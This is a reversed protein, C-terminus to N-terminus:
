AAFLSVLYAIAGGGRQAPVLPLLGAPPGAPGLVQVCCINLPVCFLSFHSLSIGEGRQAPLLPLLGAPPGAPGPM